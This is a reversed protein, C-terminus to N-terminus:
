TSRIEGDTKSSLDDHIITLAPPPVVKRLAAAAKPELDEGSQAPYESQTPIVRLHVYIQVPLRAQLSTPPAALRSSAALTWTCHTGHVDQTLTMPSVEPAM